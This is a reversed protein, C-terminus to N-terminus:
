KVVQGDKIKITRQAYRAISHDHTILIITKGEKHLKQLINMVEVGTKSDLNGTPEDALIIEPDNILARAIAVRQREGGSLETPKHKYREGLGVKTLMDKAKEQKQQNSLNDQFLMPLKVNDLASLSTILNFTQFVFGIKRGRIQALDSEKLTSIDINDLLVTGKSPIDLCGVMNLSTSNHILINNAIFNSTEPVTLDYVYQPKNIIKINKIKDWFLPANIIKNVNEIGQVNKLIETLKKAKNKSPMIKESEYRQLKHHEERTFKIGSEKRLRRIWKGIPVINVNTNHKVEFKKNLRLRKHNLNFGINSQYKLLNDKGSISLKFYKTSKMKSNTARKFTESYRSVIGFRLLLVMLSKILYKSALTIEIESKSKSIHADCDFLAKIFAAIENDPCSYIFNPLRINKSKKIQPLNFVRVFFEKLAGSTWDIRNKIYVKSQIDFVKKFLFSMRKKLKKDINFIKVGFKDVWGDGAIYGYIEMLEKSTYKPITIVGARGGKRKEIKNIRNEYKAISIGNSEVIKRFISLPINNQYLWCDYTIPKINFKKCTEARSINFENRFVDRVLNISNNIIINNDSSLHNLPNLHQSKTQIKIQEPIAIFGSKKLNKAIVEEFGDETITFLPHESTTEISRGSTTEIKILSNVKRRYVQKIKTSIINNTKKDYGKVFLNKNKLNYLDRIKIPIGSDLLVESSGSICKGSGSPGIIAVFEKERIQLSLGKLAPVEVEGMQYIKWVDKLEILTNM